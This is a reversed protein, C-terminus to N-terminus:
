GKARPLYKLLHYKSINEGCLLKSMEHKAAPNPTPPHTQLHDPPAFNDHIKSWKPMWSINVLLQALGAIWNSAWTLYSVRRRWVVRGDGFRGGGGGGGGGGGCVCVCVCVCVCLPVCM